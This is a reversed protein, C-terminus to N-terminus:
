QRMMKNLIDSINKLSVLLTHLEDETLKDFSSIMLDIYTKKIYVLYKKGEETLTMNLQRRNLQNIDRRILHRNVLPSVARSAQERSTSIKESLQSMTIGPEINLALLIMLQTKTLDHQRIDIFNNFCQNYNPLIGLLFMIIQEKETKESSKM